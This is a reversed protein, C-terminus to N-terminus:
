LIVNQRSNVWNNAESQGLIVSTCYNRDAAYGERWCKACRPSGVKTKPYVLATFQWYHFLDAEDTWTAHNSNSADICRDGGRCEAPHSPKAGASNRQSIGAAEELDSLM